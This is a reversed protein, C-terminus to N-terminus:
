MLFYGHVISFSWETFVNAYLARKLVEKNMCSFTIDVRVEGFRSSLCKPYTLNKYKGFKKIFSHEHVIQMSEIDGISKGIQSSLDLGGWGQGWQEGWGGFYASDSVYAEGYILKCCNPM